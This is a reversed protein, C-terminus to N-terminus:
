PNYVWDRKLVGYVASDLYSSSKYTSEKKVGEKVFGAHEACKASAPNNSLVEATLRRLNLVDFCFDVGSKVMEKGLGKGRHEKFVDWAMDSSRSIWDINTLKIIGFKTPNLAILHLNRPTHIHKDLSEFWREQDEMTVIAVHHTTEFSELKLELLRGLDEREVKRFFM